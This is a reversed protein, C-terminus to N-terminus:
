HAPHIPMMRRYRYHQKTSRKCKPPEVPNTEGDDVPPSTPTPSTEPKKSTTPSVEGEGEGDDGGDNNEVPDPTATATPTITVQTTVTVEEADDETPEPTPADKSTTTTPKPRPKCRRRDGPARRKLSSKQGALLQPAWANADLSDQAPSNGSDPLCQSFYENWERCSLGPACVSDGEYTKGGCQRFPGVEAAVLAAAALTLAAISFKM